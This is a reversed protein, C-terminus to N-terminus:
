NITRRYSKENNKKEKLNNKIVEKLDTKEIKNNIQEKSHHENYIKM